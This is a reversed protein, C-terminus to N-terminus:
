GEWLGLKLNYKNAWERVFRKVNEDLPNTTNNKYGRVQIVEEKRLELTVYPIDPDLRKRIFFICTNKQSINKAYSSVCHKLVASENILENQSRAPRILLKNNEFDYKELEKSFEHIKNDYIKSEYNKFEEFILDHMKQPDNPYMIKKDDMNKGLLVCWEIYDKYNIINYRNKYLYNIIKEEKYKEKLVSLLNNKIVRNLNINTAKQLTKYDVIGTEVYTKTEKLSMDYKRLLNIGAKDLNNFISALSFYSRGYNCIDKIIRTCKGKILFEIKPYDRILWLFQLLDINNKSALDLCSYKFNENKSIIAKIRAPKTLINVYPYSLYYKTRDRIWGKTPGHYIYPNGMVCYSNNKMVIERDLNIRSVEYFRENFTGTKKHYEKEYYFTRLIIENRRNSELLTVYDRFDKIINNQYIIELKTHCNSCTLYDHKKLHKVRKSEIFHWTQCKTCYYSSTDKNKFLIIKNFKSTIKDLYKRFYDIGIDNISKLEEEIQYKFVKVM